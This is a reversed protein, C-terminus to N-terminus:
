REEGIEGRRDMERRKKILSLEDEIKREKMDGDRINNGRHHM